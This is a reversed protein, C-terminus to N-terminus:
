DKKVSKGNSLSTSRESQRNQLMEELYGTALSAARKAALRKLEKFLLPRFIKESSDNKPSNSKVSVSKNRSNGAGSILFGVLFSAGIVPWPYRKILQVPNLSSSVDSRVKHISDDLELQIRELETELEQKKQKLIDVKEKAM